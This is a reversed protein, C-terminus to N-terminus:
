GNLEGLSMGVSISRRSAPQASRAVGLLIAVTGVPDDVMVDHGCPMEHLKWGDAENLNEYIGKFASPGWGSALIYSRDTVKLHAGTLSLRETFTALPQPTCRSDVWAQNEEGVGFIRSPIPPITHGGHSQAGDIHSAVAAPLDMDFLSKGDQGIFGDIYILASIREALRDAVATVISGGYSHGVLIVDSLGEFEIVNVVDQVHTSANIQAGFLHSREGLGTLTPAYVRHGDARLLEIVRSYCWGGHWAGHVLVFINGTM